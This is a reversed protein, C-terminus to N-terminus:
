REAGIMETFDFGSVLKEKFDAELRDKNQEWYEMFGQSDGIRAEPLLESLRRLEDMEDKMSIPISIIDGTILAFNMMEAKEGPAAYAGVIFSRPMYKRDFCIWNDSAALYRSIRKFEEKYVLKKLKDEPICGKLAEMDMYPGRKMFILFFYFYGAWLAWDIIVSSIATDATGTFFQATTLLAISSLVALLFIAAARMFIRDRKNM